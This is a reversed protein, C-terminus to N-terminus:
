YVLFMEGVLDQISHPDWGAPNNAYDRSAFQSQSLSYGELRQEDEESCHLLGFVTAKVMVDLAGEPDGAGGLQGTQDAM